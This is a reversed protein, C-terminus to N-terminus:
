VGHADRLAMQTQAGSKRIYKNATQIDSWGFLHQLPVPNVGSHAHYTAATARLAHPYCLDDPYDSVRIVENLRRNISARSHAYSEEHFFFAELAEQVEDAFDYPVARASNETKPEWRRAKAEPLTLNDHNSASQRARKQCYGCLGGDRGKRCRDYAPVELIQKNWDLWDASVHAIEGARLGLRGAAILVFRAERRRQEDDINAAAKLLDRYVPEPVADQHSHRPM